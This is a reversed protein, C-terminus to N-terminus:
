PQIPIVVVLEDLLQKIRMAHSGQWYIRRCDPCMLFKDYYQRTLPKLRHEIRNKGTEALVGNCHTCRTLPKILSFLAFRKLVEQIQIKPKDARVFYGHTVIKRRLLLRDRTLVVRQQESAIGAVTDDSYDNRYLCDFGLLRLYRALRGLNSDAVFQPPQSLPPRLQVAPMASFSEDAPFVEIRDGDQVIYNFGVAVGNVSIREVETHPVNFAEIMDKISAKREFNHIIETNGLASAIFDNLSRYFRIGIQTM